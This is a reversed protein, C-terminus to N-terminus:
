NWFKEYIQMTNRLPCLVYQCHIIANAIEDKAGSVYSIELIYQSLPSDRTM